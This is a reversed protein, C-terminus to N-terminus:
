NANEWAGSQVFQIVEPFFQNFEEEFFSYHEELDDMASSFNSPFTTRLDMREFVFQMGEITGYKELWQDAIMSPLQKKLRKPMEEMRKSLIQYVRATFDTIVEHHYIAWNKALLHDYFIDIVVPAYKRHNAQLRHTGKRVIPHQDTFTDIQRHLQIGRQVEAKFTAVERNRIFDAILNGIMIDEHDGSLFLHALFNM